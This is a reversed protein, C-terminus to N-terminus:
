TDHVSSVQGSIHIHREEYTVEKFVGEIEEKRRERPRGAGKRREMADRGTSDAIKAQTLDGWRVM